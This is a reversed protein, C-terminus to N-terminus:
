AGVIYSGSDPKQFFFHSEQSGQDNLSSFLSPNRGTLSQSNVVVLILIVLGLFLRVRTEGFLLEAM